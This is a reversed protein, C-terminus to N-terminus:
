PCCWGLPPGEGLAGNHPVCEEPTIEYRCYTYNPPKPTGAACADDLAPEPRCDMGGARDCYWLVESQMTCDEVQALVFDQNCDFVFEDEDRVCEYLADYEPQCEAFGDRWVDCLIWCDSDSGCQEDYRLCAAECPDEPEDDSSSTSAAPGDNSNAAAPGAAGDENPGAGEGEPNSAIDRTADPDDDNGCGAAAAALCTAFVTRRLTSQRTRSESSSTFGFLWPSM